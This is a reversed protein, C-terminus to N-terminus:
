EVVAMFGAIRQERHVLGTLPMSPFDLENLLFKNYKKRELNVFDYFTAM